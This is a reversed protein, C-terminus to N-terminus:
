GGIEDESGLQGNGRERRIQERAKRWREGMEGRIAGGSPALVLALTLGLAVGVGLGIAAPVIWNRRGARGALAQRLLAIRAAASV